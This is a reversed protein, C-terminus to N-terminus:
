SDSSAPIQALPAQEIPLSSGATENAVNVPSRKTSRSALAAGMVFAASVLTLAIHMGAMFSTPDAVLTGLLAVGLVGGVQRSANLVGSAIGAYKRPAALIAAATLSPMTAAMGLGLGVLGPALFLYDTDPSSVALVATGAACLLQGFVMVIRPGFRNTLRGTLPPALMTMAAFPLLLLGTTLASDHRVHQFYLSLVFVQGYIGFNLLFGVGSAAMFTRERLLGPSLMPASAQREVVILALGFLFASGLSGAVLPSTWGYSGAETLAFALAGLAAFGFMQGAVDVSRRVVPTEIANAILLSIAVIGIPLNVFFISRWGITGVLFGGLVPGIATGAGAFSAWIAVAKTREAREPYAHIILALSAPMLLAAGVGQVVRGAVLIALDPALGCALSGFVFISLGYGYARKAGHRDSLTGCTLLLAALAITYGNAVWQLDTVTGHLNGEIAPLAVNVITTDLIVAFFGLCLAAFAWTRNPPAPPTTTTDRNALGLNTPTAM